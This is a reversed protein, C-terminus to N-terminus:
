RDLAAVRRLFSKQDLVGATSHPWEGGPDSHVHMRGVLSRITEGMRSGLWRDLRGSPGEQPTDSEREPLCPLGLAEMFAIEWSVSSALKSYRARVLDMGGKVLRSRTEGNKLAIVAGAAGRMDGVPFLLCNVDDQLAAELGSGVFRSSVVPLGQSMAEWAVIPGTEWESTILLLDCGTYVKQVQGRNLVGLFQFVRELGVSQIAAVLSERAPGDGAVVICFDQKVSELAVALEVLDLVRKQDQEIRGCFLIRTPGNRDRQGLGSEVDGILEVGCPAYFSRSADRLSEAALRTTLRNPSVVADIVDAHQACDDFYCQELAHLAVVLRSNFRSSVQRIRRVAAYVSSINISVILSDPRARITSELARIRGEASGTRNVIRIVAHWPHRKLYADADHVHGATLGLTCDWGRNDLFPLLYDLWEAVGGLPYASPAIFLM